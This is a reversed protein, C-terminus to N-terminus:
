NNTRQEIITSQLDYDAYECRWESAAAIFPNWCRARMFLILRAHCHDRVSWSWVDAGFYQRLDSFRGNHMATLLWNTSTLPVIIMCTWQQIKRAAKRLPCTQAIVNYKITYSYIKIEKIKSKKKNGSENILNFCFILWLSVCPSKKLLVLLFDNKTM